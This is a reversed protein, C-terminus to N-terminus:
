CHTLMNLEKGRQSAKRFSEFMAKYTRCRLMSAKTDPRIRSLLYILRLVTNVDLNATLTSDLEPNAAELLQLFRVVPLKGLFTASTTM